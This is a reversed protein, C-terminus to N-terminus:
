EHLWHELKTVALKQGTRVKYQYMKRIYCLHNTMSMDYYDFTIFCLYVGSM